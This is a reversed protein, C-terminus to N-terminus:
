PRSDEMSSEILRVIADEGMEPLGQREVEARFAAIATELKSNSAPTPDKAKLAKRAQEEAYAIASSAAGELAWRQRDNIDLQWKKRMYAIAVALLASVVGALITGIIPLLQELCARGIDNWDM